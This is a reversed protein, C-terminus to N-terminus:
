SLNQPILGSYLSKDVLRGLMFAIKAHKGWICVHLSIEFLKKAKEIKKKKRFEDSHFM